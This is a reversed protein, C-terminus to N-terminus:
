VAEIRVIQRIADDTWLVICVESCIFILKLNAEVNTVSFSANGWLITL